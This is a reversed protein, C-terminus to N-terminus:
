PAEVEGCCEGEAQKGKRKAPRVAPDYDPNPRMIEADVSQRWAELERLLDATLESNASAVNRTEGPDSDLDYLEVGQPDFVEILKWRGRRIM